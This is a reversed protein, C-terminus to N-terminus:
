DAGVPAEAPLPAPEGEAGPQRHNREINMVTSSTFAYASMLICAAGGVLFWAQV